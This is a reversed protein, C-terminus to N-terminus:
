NLKSMENYHMDVERKLNAGRGKLTAVEDQLQGREMDLRSLKDNLQEIM